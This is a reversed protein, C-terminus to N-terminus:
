KKDFNEAWVLSNAMFLHFIGFDICLMEHNSTSFKECNSFYMHKGVVIAREMEVRWGGDVM